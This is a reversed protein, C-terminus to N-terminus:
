DDPLVVDASEWKAAISEASQREGLPSTDGALEKGDSERMADYAKQFWITLIPNIMGEVGGQEHISAFFMTIDDAFQKHAPTGSKGNKWNSVDAKTLGVAFYASMNNPMINREACYQLYAVFRNYLEQVNQKDGCSQRMRLLDLHYNIFTNVKDDGMRGVLNEIVTENKSIVYKTDPIVIGTAKQNFPKDRKKKQEAVWEPHRHEYITKKIVNETTGLKEAIERYKYGENRLVEIKDYTVKPIQIVKKGIESQLIPLALATNRYIGM